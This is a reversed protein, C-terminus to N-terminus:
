GFYGQLYWAGPSDLEHFIWCLTNDRRHALYYDRRIDGGDWWGSEIREADGLLAFQHVGIPKPEPLLWLPRKRGPVSLAPSVTAARRSHGQATSPGTEACVQWAAEPRHDAVPRLRHVAGSGLRARIRDLFRMAEDRVQGPGGFLDGSILTHELPHEAELRLACVEAVLIQTVLLERAILAIHKEDHSPHTLVIDLSSPPHREHVLVLRCHDIAAHRAQLWASLSAFLRRAAFLLAESHHSPAPLALEHAFRTPPEFWLRPDPQEGRARAIQLSATQAQRLALGAAPLARVDGIRRAGLGHLLELAATPCASYNSNKNDGENSSGLVALPLMDLAQQWDVGAAPGQGCAAFWHAALPTPACALHTILGLQALGERAQQEIAVMGGFLRLSASIELLVADPPAMSIRPTFCGAWCAIEALLAAERAPQRLQLQLAPAIAQAASLAQGPQVGQACAADNAVLIRARTSADVVAIPTHADALARTFVQLPLAPVFIALWLMADAWSRSTGCATM